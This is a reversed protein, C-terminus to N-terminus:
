DPRATLYVDFRVRSGEIRADCLIPGSVRLPIAHTGAEIGTRREVYAVSRGDLAYVSAAVHVMRPVEAQVSVGLVLHGDVVADTIEGTAHLLGAEPELRHVMRAADEGEPVETTLRLSLRASDEIGATPLTLASASEGGITATAQSVM